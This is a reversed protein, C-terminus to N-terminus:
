NAVQHDNCLSSLQRQSSMLLTYWLLASTLGLVGPRAQGSAIVSMETPNWSFDGPFWNMQMMTLTSLAM